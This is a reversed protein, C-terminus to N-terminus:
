DSEDNLGSDTIVLRYCSCGKTVMEQTIECGKFIDLFSDIKALDAVVVTCTTDQESEDNEEQDSEEHEDNDDQESATEFDSEYLSENDDQDCNYYCQYKNMQIFCDFCCKHNCKFFTYCSKEDGCIVCDMDEKDNLLGKCLKVHKEEKNEVRVVVNSVEVIEGNEDYDICEGNPLNDVYNYKSQINGNEYYDVCEGRIYDNVYNETEKINGNEYYGVSEGQRKGDVYNYKLEVNGNEYYYICDGSLNHDVYNQTMKINGNEYYAKYEGHLNDDV